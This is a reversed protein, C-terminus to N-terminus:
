DAKSYGNTKVLPRTHNITYAKALVKVAFNQSFGQM